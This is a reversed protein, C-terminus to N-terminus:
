KLNQREAITQAVRNRLYVPRAESASLHRGEAHAQAALDLADRADPYVESHVNSPPLSATSSLPDRFVGWGAGIGMWDGEFPNTVSDPLSVQEPGCARMLGDSGLEFAGAYVENMRADFACLVRTAAFQRAAGQALIQLSSLPIVRRGQAYALGQITGVAIRLGTFSGPGAGFALADLDALTCGAAALIREVMPLLLEAHGKPALAFETYRDGGALLACSCAETATDIALLHM